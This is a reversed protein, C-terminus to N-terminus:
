ASTHILHREIEKLRGILAILEEPNCTFQVLSQKGGINSLKELNIKYLLQGTNTECTMQWSINSTHPISHGFLKARLGLSDRNKELVADIFMSNCNHESLFDRIKNDDWDHKVVLCFFTVAAFEAQKILDSL